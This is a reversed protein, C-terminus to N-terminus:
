WRLLFFAQLAALALAFVRVRAWLHDREPYGGVRWTRWRPVLLAMVEIFLAGTVFPNLGFSFIGMTTPDYSDLHRIASDDIGPLPIRALVLAGIAVGLTVALRTWVGGRKPSM